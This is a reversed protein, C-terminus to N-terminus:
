PTAPSSHFPVPLPLTPTTLGLPIYAVYRTLQGFGYSFKRNREDGNGNATYPSLTNAAQSTKKTYVGQGDSVDITHAANDHGKKEEVQTVQFRNM